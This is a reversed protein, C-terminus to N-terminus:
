YYFSRSFAKLLCTTLFYNFNFRLINEFLYFHYCSTNFSTLHIYYIHAFDVASLEYIRFLFTEDISSGGVIFLSTPRKKDSLPLDWPM